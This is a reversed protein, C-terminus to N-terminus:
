LSVRQSIAKHNQCTAKNVIRVTLARLFLMRRKNLTVHLEVDVAGAEAAGLVKAAAALEMPVRDTAERDLVATLISPLRAAKVATISSSPLFKPTQNVMAKAKARKTV